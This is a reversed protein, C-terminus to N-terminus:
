FTLKSGAHTVFFSCKRMRHTDHHDTTVGRLAACSRTFYFKPNLEPTFPDAKKGKCKASFPWICLIISIVDMTSVMKKTCGTKHMTSVPDLQFIKRLNSIYLPPPHGSPLSRPTKWLKVKKHFNQKLAELTSSFFYLQLFVCDLM